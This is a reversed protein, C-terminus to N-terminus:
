YGINSTVYALHGFEIDSTPCDFEYDAERDLIHLTVCDSEEDYTAKLVEVDFSYDGGSYCVCPRNDEDFEFENNFKSLASILEENEVGRAIAYIESSNLGKLDNETIM